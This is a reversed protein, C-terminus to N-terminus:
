LIWRGEMLVQFARISYGEGGSAITTFPFTYQVLPALKLRRGVKFEIGAAAAIGFQLANIGPIPGDQLVVSTGDVGPLSVNAVEGTPFTVTESMLEKTHTINSSYIYSISPGGRVFLWDTVLYKVYPVFTVMRISNEATNKFTVPVTYERSTSPSRQVVGEIEQFSATMSRSDVGLTAGWTLTSRTLREFILGGVLSTGAGGTFECNCNTTFTGAQNNFSLGGYAGFMSYVLRKRAMLPDSDMVNEQAKGAAM